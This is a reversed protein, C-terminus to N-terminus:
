PTYDQLNNDSDASHKTVKYVTVSFSIDQNFAGGNKDKLTISSGIAGKAALINEIKNGESDYFGVVNHIDVLPKM